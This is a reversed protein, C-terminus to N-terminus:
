SSTDVGCVCRSSLSLLDCGDGQDPFVLGLPSQSCEAQRRAEPVAGHAQHRKHFRRPGGSGTAEAHYLVYPLRSDAHTSLVTGGEILRPEQGCVAFKAHRTKVLQPKEWLRRNNRSFVRLALREPGRRVLRTLSREFGDTRLAIAHFVVIIRNVGDERLVLYKDRRRHRAHTYVRRECLFYLTGELNVNGVHAVEVSAAFAVYAWCFSRARREERRM